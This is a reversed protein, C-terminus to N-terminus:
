IIGGLTIEFTGTIDGVSYTIIVPYQSQKLNKMTFTNSGTVTFKYYYSPNDSDATITVEEDSTITYSVEENLRIKHVDPTVVVEKEVEGVTVQITSICSPKNTM